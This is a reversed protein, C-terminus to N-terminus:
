YLPPSRPVIASRPRRAIRQLPNQSQQIETIFESQTKSSNNIYCVPRCYVDTHSNGAPYHFKNM